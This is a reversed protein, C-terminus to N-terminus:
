KAAPGAAPSEVTTRTALYVLETRNKVGAKALMTAVQNKVTFPSTGLLAGIERNTLGRVLLSLVHSERRTLSLAPEAGAPAGQPMLDFLRKGLALAPLAERLRELETRFRAGRSTRGLYLCGILEGQARLVSVATVRIGHGRVIERYFPMRERQRPTLADHDSVVGGARVAADSLTLRDSWYRDADRECQTFHKASVGTVAPTVVRDQPTAAGVYSSDFGVARELWALRAAEYEVRTHCQATADLLSAVSTAPLAM